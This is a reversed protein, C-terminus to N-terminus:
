LFLPWPICVIQGLCAAPSFYSELKWMQDLQPLPKRGQFQKLETKPSAVGAKTESDQLAQKGRRKNSEGGRGGM